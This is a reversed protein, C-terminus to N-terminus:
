DACIREYEVSVFAAGVVVESELEFGGGPEGVFLFVGDAADEFAKRAWSTM